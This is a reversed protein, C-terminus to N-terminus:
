WRYEEGMVGGRVMSVGGRVMRIVSRAMCSAGGMRDIYRGLGM